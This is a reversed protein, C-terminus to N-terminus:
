PSVLFIFKLAKNWIHNTVPAATDLLHYCTSLYNEDEIENAKIINFQIDKYTPQPLYRNILIQVPM